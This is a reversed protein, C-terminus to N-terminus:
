GIVKYKKDEILVAQKDTLPIIPYTVKNQFATVEKELRKKFHPFIALNTLKLGTLNKLNLPNDDAESGWGATEINPGAIISGASLAFYIANKRASYKKIFSDVKTQRIRELTSENMLFYEALFFAM